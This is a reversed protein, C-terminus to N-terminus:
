PLTGIERAISVAVLRAIGMIRRVSEAHWVVMGEGVNGAVLPGVVFLGPAARFRGDVRLGTNSSSPNVLGSRLMQRLLPSRTASIREFGMAGVVVGFKADLDYQSGADDIASVRFSLGDSKCERYRGATFDVVGIEVCSEVIDVSDRSDQRLLRSIQMGYHAALAVREVNNLSAAFHPISAAILPVTAVDTGSEVATRLDCSVAELLESATVSGGDDVKMKLAAIACLETVESSKKQRWHRPRGSPTLVTIKAQLDRLVDQCALVFELATANGGVVLIRRQAVPLAALTRRVQVLTADLGPDYVDHIVADISRDDAGLRRVPPSGVTLAVATTEFGITPGDRHSTYIRYGDKTPEIATVDATTLMFEAIGDSEAVLMATRARESLYAGYLRRPIFLRDWRGETVDTHHREFWAPDIDAGATVRHRDTLWETFRAREDDPLFDNLSFLTLSARGSRNGYAVGTFFQPDRDIIHIRVPNPPRRDAASLNELLSLVTHTGSAGAGIIALDVTRASESPGADNSLFCSESMLM